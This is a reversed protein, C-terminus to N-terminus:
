RAVPCIDLMKLYLFINLNITKISFVQVLFLGTDRPVKCINMFRECLVGLNLTLLKFIVYLATRHPIQIGLVWHLLFRHLLRKLHHPPVGNTCDFKYM